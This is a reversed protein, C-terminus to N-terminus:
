VRHDNRAQHAVVARRHVFLAVPRVWQLVDGGKRKKPSPRRRRRRGKHLTTTAQALALLAAVACLLAAFLAQM